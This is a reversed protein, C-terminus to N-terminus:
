FAAIASVATVVNGFFGAGGQGPFGATRLYSLLPRLCCGGGILAFLDQSGIAPSSNGSPAFEWRGPVLRVGPRRARGASEEDDDLGWGYLLRVMRSFSRHRCHCRRAPCPQCCLGRGRDHRGEKSLSSSRAKGLAYVAGETAVSMWSMLRALWLAPCFVILRT